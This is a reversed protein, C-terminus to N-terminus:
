SAGREHNFFECKQQLIEALERFKLCYFKVFNETKMAPNLFKNQDFDKISVKKGSIFNFVMVLMFM